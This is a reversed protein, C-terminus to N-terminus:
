SPFANEFTLFSHILRCLSRDLALGACHSQLVGCVVFLVDKLLLEKNKSFVDVELEELDEVDEMWDELIAWKLLSSCNRVIDLLQEKGEESIEVHALDLDRIVGNEVAAKTLLLAGEDRLSNTSVRLRELTKNVSLATALTEAGQVEIGAHNLMLFLLSSNSELCSAITAAGEDGLPSSSIDLSILRNKELLTALSPCIVATFEPTLKLEELSNISSIARALGIAVDSLAFSRRPIGIGCYTLKVKKLSSASLAKFLKQISENDEAFAANHLSFERLNANRSIATALSSITQPAFPAMPYQRLLCFDIKELNGNSGLASFIKWYADDDAADIRDCRVEKLGNRSLFLGAFASGDSIHVDNLVLCTLSTNHYLSRFVEDMTLPGCRLRLDTLSNNEKLYEALYSKGNHPVRLWLKEITLNKQLASFFSPLSEPNVHPFVDLDLRRIPASVLQLIQQIPIDQYKSSSTKVGGRGVIQLSLSQISPCLAAAPALRELQTFDEQFHLSLHTLTKSTKIAEAVVDLGILKTTSPHLFVTQRLVGSQFEKRLEEPEGM